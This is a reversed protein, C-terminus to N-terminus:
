ALCRAEGSDPVVRDGQCQGDSACMHAHAGARRSGRLRIDKAADCQFAPSDQNTQLVSAEDVFSRGTICEPLHISRTNCAGVRHLLETVPGACQQHPSVILMLLDITTHCIVLSSM